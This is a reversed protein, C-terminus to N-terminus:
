ASEDQEWDLMLATAVSGAPISPVGEPVIVLGNALGMSTLIGSGQPGTLRAHYGDAQRTVIARAFFRRQLDTNRIDEDLIVEVSPHPLAALGRMRRIAARAFLEFTLMASVPNGPLGLQPITRPAGDPGPGSIMGFALPKGPRIAVTWLDINGHRTLVEKVVDYDGRSVGASTLLLDAQRTGEFIKEELSEVTDRAIGLMVPIGGHRIVQAAVSYQNADHIQGPGLPQGPPVLEDGTALVAVKPRRIVQVRPRGVSALLGIHAARLLTGRRLVVQGAQIDEGAKRTNQGLPNAKLIQIRDLPADGPSRRMAMESTDEFPVVTDAGPPLFAGTMIRLATGPRLPEAALYGAPVYGIVPLDVPADETAAAVDEARVAFGDMAVNTQPPIDFGAVIDEALIQGLADLIPREEPSLPAFRALIQRTADELPLMAPFM